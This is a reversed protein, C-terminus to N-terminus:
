PARRAGAAQRSTGNGKAYIATYPSSRAVLGLLGGGRRSASSSRWTTSGRVLTEDESVDLRRAAELLEARLAGGRGPGLARLATVTPGHFSALFAVQHEASLFRWLLSRRPTTIM